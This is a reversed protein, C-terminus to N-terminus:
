RIWLSHFPSVRAAPCIIPIASTQWSIHGATRATYCKSKPEAISGEAIQGCSHETFCRECKLIHFNSIDQAYVSTGVRYNDGPLRICSYNKCFSVVIAFDMPPTRQSLGINLSGILIDGTVWCAIVRVIGRDVFRNLVTSSSNSAQVPRQCSCPRESDGTSALHWIVFRRPTLKVVTDQINDDFIAYGFYAGASKLATLNNACGNWGTHFSDAAASEATTRSKDGHSNRFSHFCDAIM